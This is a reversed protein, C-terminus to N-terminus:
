DAAAQRLPTVTGMAAVEREAPSSPEPQAAAEADRAAVLAALRRLTRLDELELSEIAIRFGFEEELRLLLEVLQLSDLIGSDLLDTDASPAEVHVTEALIAGLRAVIADHNPM